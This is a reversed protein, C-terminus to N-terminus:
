NGIIQMEALRLDDSTRKWVRVSRVTTGTPLNIITPAGKVGALGPVGYVKVFPLRAADELRMNEPILWFDSVVVVFDGWPAHNADAPPQWLRIQTIAQRDNWAIEAWPQAGSAHAYEDTGDFAFNVGRNAEMHSLGRPSSTTYGAAVNIGPKSQVFSSAMEVVGLSDIKTLGGGSSLIHLPFTKSTPPDSAGQPQQTNSPHLTLVGSNAGAPITLPDATLGSSEKAKALEPLRIEIPGGYGNRAVDITVQADVGSYLGLLVDSTYSLSFDGVTASSLPATFEPNIGANGFTGVVRTDHLRTAGADTAEFLRQGFPGRDLGGAAAHRPDNQSFAVVRAHELVPRDDVGQDQVVVTRVDAFTGDVVPRGATAWFAANFCKFATPSVVPVPGQGGGGGFRFCSGAEEPGYGLNFQDSSSAITRAYNGSFELQPLNEIREHDAPLPVTRNHSIVDSARFAYGWGGIVGVAVNDRFVNHQNTIWFAAPREPGPGGDGRDIRESSLSKDDPVKRALLGLNREFTNNIEVGDELFYQMGVTDYIVNDTVKLNNTQHLVLGRQFSHHIVSNSVFSSSGGEGMAHFHVPYRGPRGLQGMRTIEVNSFHVTSGIMFMMHGGFGNPSNIEGTVTINRSLNAVEARQDLVIGGITQLVGWHDHDLPQDLAVTRDTIATIRRTEAELPEYDTPAIAIEDGVRWGTPASSLTIERAGTNAHAGLRTWNLKPQGFLELRGGGMTGVFKTGMGMVNEDPNSGSLRIIARKGFPQGPTGVSLQGQGHIMIWNSTLELDKEAFVLTGEVTLSKIRSNTDLTVRIGNPITVASNIDPLKGGPWTAPDSWAGPKPSTPVGPDTPPSVPNTQCAILALTMLVLYATAHKM